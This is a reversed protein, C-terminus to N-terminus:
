AQSAVVLHREADMAKHLIRIVEIGRGSDRFFVFHQGVPYKQYGKRIDDIKKGPKRGSALDLCADRIDDVYSDAQDSGWKKASYEWIGDLDAEAAPSFDIGSM